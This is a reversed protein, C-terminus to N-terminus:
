PAELERAMVRSEVRRVVITGLASGVGLLPSDVGSEIVVLVTKEAGRLPLRYTM